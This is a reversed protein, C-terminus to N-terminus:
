SNKCSLVWVDYRPHDLASLAPSSAFMWGNFRPQDERIDRIVLEAFADSTIDGQPYRCSVLTIELREYQITEGSNLTLDQVTGNIRDLGRLKVGSAIDSLPPRTEIIEIPAPISYPNTALTDPSTNPLVEEVISQSWLTAPYAM